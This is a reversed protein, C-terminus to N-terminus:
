HTMATSQSRLGSLYAAGLMTDCRSDYESLIQVVLDLSQYCDHMIAAFRMLQSDSLLELQTFDRVFIADAWLIQSMGAYIDNNVLLPSIVRSVPNLFRHFVFGRQRLFLEIDSFLPQDIYMQLFEVETQIVLADRLRAEGHSFALLESGQIDIKMLDMGATQEVEDLRVTDVEQTAVVRAWNPFGHFRNLVKPNPMLLSTMGPSACIRLTHRRGDGVAYPLYLENPGKKENLKALADPNPEFGVVDAMGARLLDWYPPTGDISNAGIDVVRVRTHTNTLAKFSIASPSPLASPIM